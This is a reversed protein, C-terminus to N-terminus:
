EGAPLGAHEETCDNCVRHGQPDTPPPGSYTEAPLMPDGCCVCTTNTGDGQRRGSTGGTYGHTRREIFEADADADEIPVATAAAPAQADRTIESPTRRLRPRETSAQTNAQGGWPLAYREACIPGYGADLSRQDTLPHACYCCRGSNRGQEGTVAALEATSASMRRLLNRLTGEGDRAYDQARMTVTGDASIRAAVRRGDAVELGDVLRLHENANNRRRMHRPLQIRLEFQPGQTRRFRLIPNAMPQLTRGGAGLRTSLASRFARILPGGDATDGVDLTVWATTRPAQAVAETRAEPTPAQQAAFLADRQEVTHVLYLVWREQVPSMFTDTRHRRSSYRSSQLNDYQSVLSRAFSDLHLPGGGEVFQRLLAVGEVPTHTTSFTLHAGRREVSEERPETPM